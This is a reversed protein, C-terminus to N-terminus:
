CVPYWSNITQFSISKDEEEKLHKNEVIRDAALASVSVFIGAGIIARIGVNFADFLGFTKKLEVM